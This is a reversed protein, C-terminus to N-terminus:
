RDAVTEIPETVVPDIRVLVGFKPHDLFHLERSRMRRSERLRYVPPEAALGLQQETAVVSEPDLDLRVDLHLYRGLSMAIEGSLRPLPAAVRAVDISPASGRKYAPQEWAAHLLPRFDRSLRMRTYADTLQHQESPVLRYRLLLPIEELTKSVEDDVSAADNTVAMDDAVLQEWLNATPEEAVVNSTLERTPDASWDEEAGVTSLYEFVILEVRYEPPATPEDAVAGAVDQGLASASLALVLGIAAARLGHRMRETAHM